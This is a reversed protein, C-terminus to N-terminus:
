PSSTVLLEGTQFTNYSDFFPFTTSTGGIIRGLKSNAPTTLTLAATSFRIEELVTNLKVETHSRVRWWNASFPVAPGQPRVVPGSVHFRPNAPAPVDIELQAAAQDTASSTVQFTMTPVHHAAVGAAHLKKVLAKSTTFYWLSYNNIDGTGDPSELNPGVQVILGPGDEAGDIVNSACRGIRVVLATTGTAEGSLRYQPPVLDRVNAVPALSAMEDCGGLQVDFTADRQVAARTTRTHEEEVSESTPTCAVASVLLVLVASCSVVRRM